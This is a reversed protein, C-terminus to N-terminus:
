IASLTSLTSLLPFASDGKNIYMRASRASFHLVLQFHGPSLGGREAMRCTASKGPRLKTNDTGSRPWGANLLSYTCTYQCTRWATTNQGLRSRSHSKFPILALVPLVKTLVIDTKSVAVRTKSSGKARVCRSKVKSSSFRHIVTPAMLGPEIRSTTCVKVSFCPSSIMRTM